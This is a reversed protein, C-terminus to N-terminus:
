FYVETVGAGGNAPDAEHFETVFNLTRLYDQVGRRLSGTGKGHIIRVPSVGAMFCENLFRDVEPIAEDVTKGIINLETHVATVSRTMPAKKHAYPNKFTEKKPKVAKFLHDPTVKVQILGCRVTVQNRSVSVISGESEITDIYVWTGKKIDEKPLPDRRNEKGPVAIGNVRGRVESIKDGLKERSLASASKKLDKIISESQVRLDRKMSEAEERAKELISDKRQYFEDRASELQNKLQEAQTLTKMTEEKEKAIERSQRNLREMVEDMNHLPSENKLQIARGLIVDPMGFRRCINFANSNGAVGIILRYTPALTKEDFEVFANQIGRTEYALKKMESFHSTIIAPAGKMQLYETVSQALAAGEVPDTGSGLEDLLVLDKEGVTPLFSVLQTIYSSFTSLNDQISQEDGIIAYIHDYVPLSSGDAAPIFLGSQNMLSLLGATKIAITKGGANSGTIILINFTKGLTMSVPVVKDEPILPHRAKRLDLVQGKSRVAKVAKMSLALRARAFIFELETALHCNNRTVEVTKKVEETLDRLIEQIEQKEAATMEALDNNLEVSVMPEMFLTQGTSSRDHVIGSFKYRYEEKVPVVYRGNRQTIIADQLYPAMDKDQLIHQFSRRIRSKVTEKQTRIRSLKLSASDKVEGHDDFVRHIRDILSDQPVILASLEELVPYMLHKEGEFYHHMKKYTDLSNALDLFERASLTSDKEAKKLLPRIDYTEGLPTTIEKELLVSAEDTEELSKEVVEPVYSPTLHLAREKSLTSPSLDALKERIKDFELIELIDKEM